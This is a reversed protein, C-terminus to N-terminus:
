KLESPSKKGKGEFLVGNEHKKVKRTDFHIYEIM